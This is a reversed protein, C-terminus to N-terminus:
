QSQPNQIPSQPSHYTQVSYKSHRFQFFYASPAAYAIRYIASQPINFASQSIRPYPVRFFRIPRSFCPNPDLPLFRWRRVGLISHHLLLGNFKNAIKAGGERGERNSNVAFFAFFDRLACLSILRKQTECNAIRMGLDSIGRWGVLIANWGGVAYIEGM